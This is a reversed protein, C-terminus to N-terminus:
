KEFILSLLLLLLLLLPHPIPLLFFCLSCPLQKRVRQGNNVSMKVAAVVGTDCGGSAGLVLDEFAGLHGPSGRQTCEWGGPSGASPTWLEVAVGRRLLLDPVIEDFARPNVSFSTLTRSGSGMTNVGVTTKYYETSLLTADSGHVTFFNQSCCFLHM